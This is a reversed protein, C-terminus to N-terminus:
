CVHAVRRSTDGTLQYVKAHGGADTGVEEVLGARTLARLHKSVQCGEERYKLGLVAAIQRATRTCGELARVVAAQGLGDVGVLGEERLQLRKIEHRVRALNEVGVTRLMRRHARRLVKHTKTSLELRRLHFGVTSISCKLAEAMERQCLGKRLMKKLLREWETQERQPRCLRYYQAAGKVQSETRGILEAAEAYTSYALAERLKRLELATWTHRETM